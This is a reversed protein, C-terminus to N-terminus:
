FQFIIVLIIRTPAATPASRARKPTHDSSPSSAGETASLSQPSEPTSVDEYKGLRDRLAKNEQLIYIAFDQLAGMYEHAETLIQLEPINNSSHLL